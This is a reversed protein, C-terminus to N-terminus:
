YFVIRDGPGISVLWSKIRTKIDEKTGTVEDLTYGSSNILAATIM